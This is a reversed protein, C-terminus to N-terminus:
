SASQVGRLLPVGPKRMVMVLAMGAAFGGIHAWWAVGGAAGAQQDAMTIFGYVLQLAIYFSLVWVARLHTGYLFPGLPILVFIRARPYLLLYAGLAGSVAGSAGVMPVESIPNMYGQAFAAALGCMLYFALFRLHGFADEVNNGFIWLFLMNGLLHWWSGHMFMSTFLTLFSPVVALDAPLAADSFLTAPIFGLGYIAAQSADPALSAQWWFVATNVVILGVTIFPWTQTPNQDRLPIM